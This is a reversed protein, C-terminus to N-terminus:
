RRCVDFFTILLSYPWRQEKSSMLTRVTVNDEQRQEGGERWCGPAGVWLHKDHGDLVENDLGHHLTEDTFHFELCPQINLDNGLIARWETRLSDKKIIILLLLLELANFFIVFFDM